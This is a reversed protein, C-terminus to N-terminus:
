HRKQQEYIEQRRLTYSTDLAPFIDLGSKLTITVGYRGIEIRRLFSRIFDRYAPSSPTAQLEKYESLIWAVDIATADHERVTHLASELEAKEAELENLRTVLADPLLGGAVADALNALGQTVELLRQQMAERRKGSIEQETQAQKQINTAAKKLAAPNLLKEELLALVSSELYDRNIERNACTYRKSPCRYTVYIEQNRGSRRTNGVMARGCEKCSVCGSLLYNTRVNHRGGTHTNNKIREQVREFIATDVIQPCGGDIRITDEECKQLHTNRTGDVAKSSSRNFVYLGKYKPNTLISYLSNKQFM